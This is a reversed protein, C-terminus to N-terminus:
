VQMQWIHCHLYYCSVREINNGVTIPKILFNPDHMFKILMEKCKGSNLRMTHTTAFKQIDSAVINLLSSANRPLIEGASTDDVFKIRLHWDNLLANTM